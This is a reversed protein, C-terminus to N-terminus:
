FVSGLEFIPQYLALVLAGIVGGLLVILLPELLQSLGDLRSDVESELLDATRALMSDLSGCEEGVGVMQRVLPLFDKGPGMAASLSQGGAVARQLAQTVAELHRNGLGAALHGLADVLPVGAGVMMSLLRTWRAMLVAQLAAGVGPLRLLWRDRHGQLGPRVRFGWRVLGTLALAGAALAPGWQVVGHSLAVVARTAAPLQAGMSAFVTEFTPVVFALIGAVVAMAVLLVGAPYLLAARLRRRLVLEREQQQALRDLAAELRGSEEGIAVLRCQLESFVTPHRAMADSLRQGSAVTGRLESAVCALETDRAPGAGLRPGSATGREQALLQLSEVLPLGARALAALQRLFLARAVPSSRRMGIRRGVAKVRQAVIGQRALAWRAQEASAAM